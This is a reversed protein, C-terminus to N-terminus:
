LAVCPGSAELDHIVVAGSEGAAQVADSEVRRPDDSDQRQLGGQSGAIPGECLLGVISATYTYSSTSGGGGGKGGSAQSQPNPTFDVYDILKM